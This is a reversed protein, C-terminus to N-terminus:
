LSVPLGCKRRPIDQAFGKMILFATYIARPTNHGWVDVFQEGNITFQPHSFGDVDIHGASEIVVPFKIETKKNNYQFVTRM